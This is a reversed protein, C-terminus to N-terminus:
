KGVSRCLHELVKVYYGVKKMDDVTAKVCYDRALGCVEVSAIKNKEFIMEAIDTYASYQEENPNKGKLVVQAAYNNLLKQIGYPIEAGWSYQLCHIPWIGGNTKFSMHDLPHWDKSYILLWGKKYAEEIKDEIPKIIEQAGPVALAGTIFDNQMDVIFLAKM